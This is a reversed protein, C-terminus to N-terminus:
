SKLSHTFVKNEGRGGEFDDLGKIFDSSQKFGTALILAKYTYERGNSLKLKNEEPYFETVTEGVDVRSVKDVQSTVTPTVLKLDQLHNHTCGFYAEPVLFSDQKSILAMKYPVQETQLFKVLGTANM